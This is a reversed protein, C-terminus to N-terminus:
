DFDEGSVEGQERLYEAYLVPREILVRDFAESVTIGGDAALEQAAKEIKAWATDGALRKEVPAAPVRDPAAQEHLALFDQVDESSWHKALAQPYGMTPEVEALHEKLWQDIDARTFEPLDDEVRGKVDELMDGGGEYRKFLQVTCHPNAPRDVLSGELIELQRLRRVQRNGRRAPDSPRAARGSRFGTQSPM